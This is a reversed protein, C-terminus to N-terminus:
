SFPWADGFLSTQIRSPSTTSSSVAKSLGPHAIAPAQEELNENHSSGGLLLNSKPGGEDTIFLHAYM